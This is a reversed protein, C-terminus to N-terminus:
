GGYRPQRMANVLGNLRILGLAQRAGEYDRDSLLANVSKTAGDAVEDDSDGLLRELVDAGVQAQVPLINRAIFVALSRVHRSERSECYVLFDAVKDPASEAWEAYNLTHFAEAGTAGHIDFEALSETADYVNAFAQKGEETELDAGMFEFTM